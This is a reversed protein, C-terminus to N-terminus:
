VEEGNGNVIVIETKQGQYGYEPEIKKLRKMAAVAKEKTSYGEKSWKVSQLGKSLYRTIGNCKERIYFQEPFGIHTENYPESPKHSDKHAIINGAYYKLGDYLWCGDKYQMPADYMKISGGENVTVWYWGAYPPKNGKSWDSM